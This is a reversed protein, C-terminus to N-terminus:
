GKFYISIVTKCEHFVYELYLNVKHLSIEKLQIDIYCSMM